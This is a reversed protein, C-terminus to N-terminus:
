RTSIRYEDVPFDVSLPARRDEWVSNGESDTGVLQRYHIADGAVEVWEDITAPDLGNAEVWACMAARRQDDMTAKM